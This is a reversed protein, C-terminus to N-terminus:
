IKRYVRKRADHHSIYGLQMFFRHNLTVPPNLNEDIPLPGVGATNNFRPYSMMEDFVKRENRDLEQRFFKWKRREMEAAIRYSPVTRGM